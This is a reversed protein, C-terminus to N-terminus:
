NIPYNLLAAAMCVADGIILVAMVGFADYWFYSFYKEKLRQDQVM